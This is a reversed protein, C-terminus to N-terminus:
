KPNLKWGEQDPREEEAGPESVNSKQRDGCASIVVVGLIFIGLSKRLLKKVM